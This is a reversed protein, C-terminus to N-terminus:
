RAAMWERYQANLDDNAWHEDTDGSLTKYAIPTWPEPLPRPPVVTVLLGGYDALRHPFLMLDNAALSLAKLAEAAWLATPAPMAISYRVDIREFVEGGAAALAREAETIQNRILDINM